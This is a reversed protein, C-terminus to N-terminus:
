RHVCERVLTSSVGSWIGVLVVIRAAECEVIGPNWAVEMIRRVHAIHLPPNLKRSAAPGTVCRKHLRGAFLQVGAVGFVAIFFLSLIFIPVMMGFSSSVASLIMNVNKLFSLARFARLARVARVARLAKLSGSGGGGSTDASPPVPKFTAWSLLVILFDLRNWSESFFAKKRFIGLCCMKMVMEITFLSNFVMDVVWLMDDVEPTPNDAQITLTVVNAFILFNIFRTFYRHFTVNHM